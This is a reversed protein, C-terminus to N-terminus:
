ALRNKWRPVLVVAVLLGGLFGGLHGWLDVEPQTLNSVLNIGVMVAMQAVQGWNHTRLGVIVWAGMLGFIATSAGASIVDPALLLSLANGGIAGGLYIFLFRISGIGRELPRGLVWLSVMNMLIHTWGIHLFAASVLRWWENHDYIFPAWKAGYVLLTLENASGGHTELWYFMIGNLVLLLFTVM